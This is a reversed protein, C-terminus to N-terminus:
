ARRWGVADAIASLAVSESSSDMGDLVKNAATMQRSGQTWLQGGVPHTGWMTHGVDVCIFSPHKESSSMDQLFDHLDSNIGSVEEETKLIRHNFAIQKQRSADM